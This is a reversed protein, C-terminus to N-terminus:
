GEQHGSLKVVAKYIAELGELLITRPCAANLRVFGIGQRGFWFGDNLAVGSVELTKLLLEQSCGLNRMDLWALYTAEPKRFGVQPMRECIFDAITQMNGDVYELLGELWPGGEDFAAEFATVAFANPRTNDIRQMAGLFKVRDEEIPLHAYSAQIGALNFTKTASFLTITIKEVEPSLSAFPIHKVGKFVLDRWIEDSVVRIGHRMCIDALRELEARKWVRGVPNHPNCLIFWKTKPDSAISEFGEFDIEYGDATEILPNRVLERDFHKPVNTFPGYVPPQIIIKDEPGTLESMIYALSPVVGSSFVLEEKSMRHGYRGETWQIAKLYFSDPIEVYGYIGHSVREVLAKTIAESAKFDMDAVWMPVAETNNFFHGMGDWKLSHTGRRGIVQDFGHNTGEEVNESIGRVM